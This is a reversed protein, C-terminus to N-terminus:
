AKKETEFLQIAKENRRYYDDHFPLHVYKIDCDELTGSRKDSPLLYFDVEKNMFNEDTFGYLKGSATKVILPFKYETVVRSKVIPMLTKGVMTNEIYTETYITKNPLTKLVGIDTMYTINIDPSQFCEQATEKLAKHKNILINNKFEQIDKTRTYWLYASFCPFCPIIFCSIFWVFGLFGRMQNFEIHTIVILFAIIASWLTISKYKNIQEQM